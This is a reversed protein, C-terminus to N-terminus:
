VSTSKCFPLNLWYFLYKEKEALNRALHTELDQCLYLYKLKGVVSYAKFYSYRWFLKAFNYNTDKFIPGEPSKGPPRASPVKGELESPAAETDPWPALIGCAQPWFGLPLNLLPKLFHALYFFFIQLFKFFFVPLREERGKREGGVGMGLVCLYLNPPPINPSYQFIIM